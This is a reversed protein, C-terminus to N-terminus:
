KAFQVVPGCLVQRMHRMNAPLDMRMTEQILLGPVPLLPTAAVSYTLITGDGCDQLQLDASFDKFSGQALSFRIREEFRESVTLFIEVEVPFVLFAKRAAQYLRRRQGSRASTQDLIESKVIDPFYRVWRSYHTLQSWLHSRVMPLYISATVAGGWPTHANIDVLTEGALLAIVPFENPVGVGGPDGDVEEDTRLAQHM